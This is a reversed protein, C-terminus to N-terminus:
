NMPNLGCKEFIRIELEKMEFSPLFHFDSEANIIKSAQNAFPIQEPNQIFYEEWEKTKSTNPNITYNIFEDSVLFDIVNKNTATSM